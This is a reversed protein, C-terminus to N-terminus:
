RRALSDRDNASLGGLQDKGSYKDGFREQLVNEVRENELRMNRLITNVGETYEGFEGETTMATLGPQTMYSMITEADPAVAKLLDFFSSEPVVDLSVGGATKADTVGSTTVIDQGVPENLSSSPTTTVNIDTGQPENLM